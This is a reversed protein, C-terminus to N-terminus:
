DNEKVKYYVHKGFVVKEIKGERVMIDLFKRMRQDSIKFKIKIKNLTQGHQQKLYYLCYKEEFPNPRM